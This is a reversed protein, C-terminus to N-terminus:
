HGGTNFWKDAVYSLLFGVATGAGGLYYQKKEVRGIRKDLKPITSDITLRLDTLAQAVTAQGKVLEVLTQESIEM